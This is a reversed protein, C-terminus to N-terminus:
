RITVDEAPTLRVIAALAERLQSCTAQGFREEVEGTWRRYLEQSRRGKATPAAVKFRGGGHDPGVM